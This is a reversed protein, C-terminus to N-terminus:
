VARFVHLLGSSQGGQQRRWADEVIFRTCGMGELADLGTDAADLCHFCKQRVMGPKWELPM